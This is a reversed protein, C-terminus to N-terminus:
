DQIKRFQKALDTPDDEPQPRLNLRAFEKTLAIVTQDASVQSVSQTSASYAIPVVVPIQERRLPKLLFKRLHVQPLNEPAPTTLINDVRV